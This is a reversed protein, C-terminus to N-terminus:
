YDVRVQAADNTIPLALGSVGGEGLDLGGEEVVQLDVYFVDKQLRRSWLTGRFTQGRWQSTDGIMGVVINEFLTIDVNFVADLKSTLESFTLSLGVGTKPDRAAKLVEGDRWTEPLKELRPLRWLFRVFIDLVLRCLTQTPVTTGTYDLKWDTFWENVNGSLRREPRQLEMGKEEENLDDFHTASAQFSGVVKGGIVFEYKPVVWIEANPDTSAKFQKDLFGLIFWSITTFSIPRMQPAPSYRLCTAREGSLTSCHTFNRDVTGVQDEVTFTDLMELGLYVIDTLSCNDSQDGSIKLAADLPKSDPTLVAASALPAVVALLLFLFLGLPPISHM